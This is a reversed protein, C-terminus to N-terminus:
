PKIKDVVINGNYNGTSVQVNFADGKRLRTATKYDLDLIYVGDSCSLTGYVESKVNIANGDDTTRAYSKVQTVTFTAGITSETYKIDEGNSIESWVQQQTNEVAQVNTNVQTQTEVQSSAVASKKKTGIIYPLKIAVILVLLGVTIIILATKITAKTEPNIKKKSTEDEEDDAYKNKNFSFRNNETEEEDEISERKRVNKNKRVPQEDTDDDLDIEEDEFNFDNDINQLESELEFDEDSFDIDDFEDKM